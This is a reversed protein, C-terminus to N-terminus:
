EFSSRGCQPGGASRDFALDDGAGLNRFIHCGLSAPRCLVFEREVDDVAQQVDASVVVQHGFLLGDHPGSFAENEVRRSAM